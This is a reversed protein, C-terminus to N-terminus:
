IYQLVFADKEADTMDEWAWTDLDGLMKQAAYVGKAFDEGVCHSQLFEMADMIADDIM